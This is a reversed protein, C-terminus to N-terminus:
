AEAATRMARYYYSPLDVWSCERKRARLRRGEAKEMSVDGSLTRVKRHKAGLMKVVAIKGYAGATASFSSPAAPEGGKLGKVLLMSRGQSLLLWEATTAVLRDWADDTMKHLDETWDFFHSPPMAGSLCDVTVYIETLGKKQLENEVATKLLIASPKTLLAGDTALYLNVSSRNEVQRSVFDNAIEKAFCGM